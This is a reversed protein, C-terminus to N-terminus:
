KETNKAENWWIDLEDLTYESWNRGSQAIKLEIYQFRRTFKRVTGALAQDADVKIFRSLNVVAFLLDGLEDARASDGAETTAMVQLVEDLEERIKAVVPEVETWDFGVKAARKQVETAKYLTPLDVPVGDLLSQNDVDIGKERKEAQKIQQWNALVEESNNARAEGFVHPHRRILKESIAEIVDTVSFMGTEEEMESHLMIQLLLDGLEECMAEPDDNDITEVVEFAEEVLHKRISQHTQERDWPCGGPSRLTHVINRLQAFTRNLVADETTPPVWIMSHNGYGQVHDLEHLPISLIREDAFGLRHAVVVVYDDPYIDMLTLKADSASHMDYVQTIITHIRPQILDATMTTADLLQFGDVPDIGLRLFTQDLFSEGGLIALRVGADACRARLQVVTSEAVMPHGPVAYVIEAGAGAKAILDAVIAAYVEEFRGHQEYMADYSSMTLGQEALWAVVPHDATRLCIVDADQLVTWVGLTLQSEDGSGLGVVTISGSV